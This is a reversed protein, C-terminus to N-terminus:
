WPARGAGHRRLHLTRLVTFSLPGLEIGARTMYCATVLVPLAALRRPLVVLALSSVALFLILLPEM